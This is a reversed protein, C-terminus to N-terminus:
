CCTFVGSFIGHVQFFFSSENGLFKGKGFFPSWNKPVKIKEGSM